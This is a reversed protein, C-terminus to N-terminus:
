CFINIEYLKENNMMYFISGTFISFSQRETHIEIINMNM